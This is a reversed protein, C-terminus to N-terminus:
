KMTREPERWTLRPEQPAQSSTGDNPGVNHLDPRHVWGCGIECKGEQVLRFLGAAHDNDMHSCVLHDIKKVGRRQLFSTATAADKAYGGDILMYTPRGNEWLTVLLSDADGLSLMDIEIGNFAV